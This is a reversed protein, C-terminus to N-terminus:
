LHLRRRGRGEKAIQVGLIVNGPLRRGAGNTCFLIGMSGPVDWSVMLRTLDQVRYRVAVMKALVYMFAGLSRAQALWTQCESDTQFLPVFPSTEHRAVQMHVHAKLQDTSLGESITHIYTHIVLLPWSKLM